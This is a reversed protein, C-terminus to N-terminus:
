ALLWNRAKCCNKRQSASSSCIESGIAPSRAGVTISFSTGPQDRAAHRSTAHRLGQYILRDVLVAGDGPAEM